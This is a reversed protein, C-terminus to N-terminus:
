LCATFLIILNKCIRTPEVGDVLGHTPKFHVDCVNLTNVMQDTICGRKIAHLIESYSTYSPILVPVTSCQISTAPAPIPNSHENIDPKLFITGSRLGKDDGSGGSGTRLWYPIYKDLSAARWLETECCLLARHRLFGSNYISHRRATCDLQKEEEPAPPEQYAHQQAFLKVRRLPVLLDDAVMRKKKNRFAELHDVSLFDGHCLVSVGGFLENKNRILQCVQHLLVFSQGSLLHVQDLVLVKCSLWRAALDPNLM